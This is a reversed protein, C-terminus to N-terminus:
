EGMLKLTIVYTENLYEAFAAVDKLEKFFYGGYSDDRLHANFQKLIQTYEEYTIHLKKAIANDLEVFKFCIYYGFNCHKIRIDGVLAKILLIEVWKCAKKADKETKFYLEKKELESTIYANFKTKLFNQYYKLDINLLAAIDKDLGYIENYEESDVIKIFYGYKNKGIETKHM